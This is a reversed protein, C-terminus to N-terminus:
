EEGMREAMLRKVVVASLAASNAQAAIRIFRSLFGSAVVRPLCPQHPRAVATPDRDRATDLFIKGAIGVAGTDIRLAHPLFNGACVRPAATLPWWFTAKRM